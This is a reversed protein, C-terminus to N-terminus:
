RNMLSLHTSTDKYATQGTTLFRELESRVIKEMLLFVNATSFKVVSKWPSM